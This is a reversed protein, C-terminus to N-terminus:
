RELAAYRARRWRYPRLTYRRSVGAAHIASRVWAIVASDSLAAVSVSPPLTARVNVLSTLTLACFTWGSLMFPVPFGPGVLSEAFSVTPAPIMTLM